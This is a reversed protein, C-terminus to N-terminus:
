KDQELATFTRDITSKTSLFYAMQLTSLYEICVQSLGKGKFKILGPVTAKVLQRVTHKLYYISNISTSEEPHLSLYIFTSHQHRKQEKWGGSPRFPHCIAAMSVFLFQYGAKSLRRKFDVDEMAAYPFREEFGTLLKFAASRIAFNCSWLYGGSENVPSQEALTQRPRDVYVRGEFVDYDKHQEIAEAYATLWQADPLCDDDTFVLWEGQAHSAGNNRNSAPGKSQGAVWKAWPYRDRIMEKATTNQGDDTIIVEYQNSELSQVGPAICDLCKALSDNRHYTPIVVSFLLSSM